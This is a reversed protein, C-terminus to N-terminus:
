QCLSHVLDAGASVTEDTGPNDEAPIRKDSLSWLLEDVAPGAHDDHQMWWLMKFLLKEFKSHGSDEKNVKSSQGPTAM